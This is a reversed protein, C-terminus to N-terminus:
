DKTGCKDELIEQLKRLANHRQDEEVLEIIKIALMILHWNKEWRIGREECVNSIAKVIDKSTCRLIVADMGHEDYFAQIDELKM